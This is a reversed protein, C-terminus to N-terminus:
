DYYQGREREAIEADINEIKAWLDQCHATNGHTEYEKRNLRVLQARMARLATISYQLKIHTRTPEAARTDEDHKLVYENIANTCGHLDSYKSILKKHWGNDFWKSYLKYHNYRDAEDYYIVFMTTKTKLEGIKKM